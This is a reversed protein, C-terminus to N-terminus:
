AAVAEARSRRLGPRRPVESAARRAPGRGGRFRGGRVRVGRFRSARFRAAPGHRPEAASGARQFSRQGARAPGPHRPFPCPRPAGIYFGAPGASPVPSPWAAGAPGSAGGPGGVSARERSARHPSRARGHGAPLAFRSQRRRSRWSGRGPSGVPRRGSGVARRPRSPIERLLSGAQQRRYRPGPPGAWTGPGRLPPSRPPGPPGPRPRVASHPDKVPWAAASPWGVAAGGPRAHRTVGEGQGAPRGPDSAPSRPRAAHRGAPATVPHLPAQRDESPWSPPPRILRGPGTGADAPAPVSGSWQRGPPGAAGGPRREAPRRPVPRCRPVRAPPGSPASPRRPPPKAHPRRGCGPQAGRAPVDPAVAPALAPAAAPSRPQEEDRRWVKGIVVVDDKEALPAM